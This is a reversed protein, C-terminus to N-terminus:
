SLKVGYLRFEGEAFNSTSPYIRIADVDGASVRYGMGRENQSDTGVISFTSYSIGTYKSTDSPDYIVIEGNASDTTSSGVGTAHTIRIHDAGTSSFGTVTANGVSNYIKVYKYDTAGSDFTSGGDTSTRVRLIPTGSSARVGHYKIIYIGYTSDISSTFDIETSSSATATSLLVMSGGGQDTWSLTGSGNTKIVQDATGDGDPLTFTTSTTVASPSKFAMYNSGNDTDELLRIEASSTSTGKINVVGTGKASLNLDINTDDGAASIIPGSGTAENEINIHNVASADETFTLLENTGDGIANGNVDLQGGLRPTTDNVVEASSTITTGTITLGAGATLYAHTGASDDWFLIRDAGPDSLAVGLGGNATSVPLSILSTDSLDIVSLGNASSNFGIVANASADPLTTDFTSIDVTSDVKIARSIRDKNIQAELCREDLDSELTEAPLASNTAYDSDQTFDPDLEIIVTEGSAPINGATFVVNSGSVNYHTAATKLTIVGTAVVKISVKVNTSVSLFPFTIAFTDTSGNGSYTDPAYVSSITM